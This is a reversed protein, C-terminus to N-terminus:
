TLLAGLAQIASLVGQEERVQRGLTAVRQRMAQDAITQQITAALAPATLRAIPKTKLGLGRRQVIEAWGFQDLLFPTIIAPIGARLCAGTTGAGGHHLIAAVQPFLWDHPAQDLCFIQVDATDAPLKAWGALLIARQGSLRLAERILEIVQPPDEISMSGFGICIPPVGQNLFRVLAESPQFTTPADLFWYGTVTEQPLWDAPKPILHPSYAYLIPLGTARMRTYITQFTPLPPLALTQTRWRNVATRVSQWSIQEMLLHTVRNFPGLPRAATMFINSFARTPSVPALHSAILPICRKEACEQAGYAVSAAIILDAGASGAWFDAFLQDYLGQSFRILKGLNLMLRAPGQRFFAQVEPKQLEEQPNLQVPAFALGYASALNAFTRPAVLRVQHGAQQLGQGLAVYPQVDGRSGLTLIVIQKSM